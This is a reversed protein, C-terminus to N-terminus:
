CTLHASHLLSIVLWSVPRGHPRPTRRRFFKHRHTRAGNSHAQAGERTRAHTILGYATGVSRRRQGVLVTDLVKGDLV